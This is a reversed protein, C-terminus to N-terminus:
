LANILEQRKANYEDETLLRQNKLETLKQLKADVPEGTKKSVPKSKTYNRLENAVEQAIYDTLVPGANKELLSTVDEDYGIHFIGGVFSPITWFLWWGSEALWTRKMDAHRVDLDIPINVSKIFQGTQADTLDVKVDHVVNYKYGHWAPTFILFGPWDILFNWGSGKYQSRSDFSAIVDVNSNDPYIATTAQVNYRGIDVAFDRAMRKADMQHNKERIGLRIPQELPAGMSHQRYMDLNKVALPHTCATLIFAVATFAVSNKIIKKNM